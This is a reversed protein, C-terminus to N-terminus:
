LLGTHSPDRLDVTESRLAIAHLIVPSIVQAAHSCARGARILKLSSEIVLNGLTSHTELDTSHAVILPTIPMAGKTHFGGLRHPTALIPSNCRHSMRQPPKDLRVM